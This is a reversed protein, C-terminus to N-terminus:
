SFLFCSKLVTCTAHASGSHPPPPCPTRGGGSFDCFFNLKQCYQDPDGSFCLAVFGANLTPGDDGTLSIGNLDSAREDHYKSGRMLWLFGTLAPGGRVFSETDACPGITSTNVQQRSNVKNPDM